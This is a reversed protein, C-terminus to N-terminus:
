RLRKPPEPLAKREPQPPLATAKPPEQLKPLAPTPPASPPIHERAEPLPAQHKEFLPAVLAGITLVGGAVVTVFCTALGSITFTIKAIPTDPPGLSCLVFAIPGVACVLGILRENDDRNFAIVVFVVAASIGLASFIGPLGLLSFGGPNSMMAAPAGFMIHETMNQLPPWALYLLLLLWAGTAFALLKHSM